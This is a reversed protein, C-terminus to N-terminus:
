AKRSGPLFNSRPCDRVQGGSRNRSIMRKKSLGRKPKFKLTLSAAAREKSSLVAKAGRHREDSFFVTIVKQKVFKRQRM